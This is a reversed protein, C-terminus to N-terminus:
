VILRLPVQKEVIINYYSWNTTNLYNTICRINDYSGNLVRLYTRQIEIFPYFKKLINNKKNGKRTMIRQRSTVITGTQENWVDRLKTETKRRIMKWKSRFIIQKKRSSSTCRREEKYRVGCKKIQNCSETDNKKNQHYTFLNINRKNYSLNPELCVKM